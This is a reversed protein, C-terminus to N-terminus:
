NLVWKRALAVAHHKKITINLLNTKGRLGDFQQEGIALLLITEDTTYWKGKVVNDGNSSTDHEKKSIVKESTKETPLTKQSPHYHLHDRYM